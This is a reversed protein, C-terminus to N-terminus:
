PQLAAPPEPRTVPIDDPGLVRRLDDVDLPTKVTISVKNGARGTHAYDPKFHLIRYVGRDEISGVAQKFILSDYEYLDDQEFLAPNDLQPMEGKGQAAMKFRILLDGYQDRGEAPVRSAPALPISYSFVPVLAFDDLTAALASFPTDIVTLRWGDELDDLYSRRGAAFARAETLAPVEVPDIKEVADATLFMTDYSGTQSEARGQRLAAGPRDGSRFVTEILYCFDAMKHRSVAFVEKGQAKFVIDDNRPEITFADPM